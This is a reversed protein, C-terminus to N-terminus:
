LLKKRQQVTTPLHVGDPVTDAASAPCGARDLCDAWAGVCECVETLKAKAATCDVLQGDCIPRGEECPDVPPQAESSEVDGGGGGSCAMTSDYISNIMAFDTDLDMAWFMAGGLGRQCAFDTKARHTSITDFTVFQNGNWAYATQSAVDTAMAGGNAVMHAIEFSALFGAEQTCVGANGAGIAPSGYEHSAPNALTWTRGYGALGVLLKAAPVGGKTYLDVAHEISLGDAAKLATHPGTTSDWSGHLDYTMLNIWDVTNLFDMTLVLFVFLFFPSLRARYKHIKNVEILRIKEEGAPAAITLLLKPSRKDAEIAERM